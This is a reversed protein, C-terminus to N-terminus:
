SNLSWPLGKRQIVAALLFPINIYFLALAAENTHFSLTMLAQITQHMAIMLIGLVLARSRTGIALFFVIELLVGGGFLGRALWPHNLLYTVGPPDLQWAPDLNSFYSQRTTKIFDLAVNHSNAFWEGGSRHLKSYVSTLYTSAIMLQGSSLLWSNTHNSPLLSKTRDNNVFINQCLALATFIFFTTAPSDFTQHLDSALWLRFLRAAGFIALVPVIWRQSFGVPTSPRSSSRTAVAAVSMGLLTLSLIQYGHHPHGQSNLLTYPLVHLLTLIPLFIHICWGSVYAFSAVYFFAVFLSYAEAHALWTLSMFRALGVPQPQTAQNISQPLFHILAFAFLLRLLWAELQSVIPKPFLAPLSTM